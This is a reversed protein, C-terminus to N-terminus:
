TRFYSHLSRRIITLGVAIGAAALALGAALMILPSVGPAGDMVGTADIITRWRSYAAWSACFALLACLVNVACVAPAYGRLLMRPTYGLLMLRHLIRRSKQMMVQISLGLILMALLFIVAGVGGATAVAVRLVYAAHSNIGGTDGSELSNAELYGAIAPDGPRSLKVMLRSPEQPLTPDGYETNAWQMFEEPVAITNLRDSFGVIRGELWAQRGRGYISIRLPVLGIMGASLRPLGRASAFGFNYLNLYDRSLIIPVEPRSPDFTWGPPVTDLMHKPVSEFFLATSLDGGGADLSASVGYRAATFPAVDAVWPQAKLDAMANSDFGPRSVFGDVRHQISIYEADPSDTRFIWSIDSYALMAMILLTMGTFGAAMYAGTHAMSIDHRLLRRLLRYPTTM